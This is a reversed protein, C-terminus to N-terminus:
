SKQGLSESIAKAPRECQGRQPCSSKKPGASRTPQLNALRSVRRPLQRLPMKRAQPVPRRPNQQATAPAGPSAPAKWQPRSEVTQYPQAERPPQPQPRSPAAVGGPESKFEIGLMALAANSDSSSVSSVSVNARKRVPKITGAKIGLLCERCYVPRGPEPAFPVKTEKNCNSCLVRFGSGEQVVGKSLVEASPETSSGPATMMGAWASVEAEVTERKRAYKKRSYNIV